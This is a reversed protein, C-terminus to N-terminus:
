HEKFHDIFSISMVMDFWKASSLSVCVVKVM